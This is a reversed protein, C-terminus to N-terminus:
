GLGILNEQVAVDAFRWDVPFSRKSPFDRINQQRYVTWIALGIVYRTDGPASIGSVSGVELHAGSDTDPSSDLAPFIGLLDALGLTLLTHSIFDRDALQFADLM